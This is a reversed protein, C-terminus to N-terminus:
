APAGDAAMFGNLSCAFHLVHVAVALVGGAVLRSTWLWARWASFYDQSRVSRSIRTSRSIAAQFATAADGHEPEGRPRCRSCRGCPSQRRPTAPSAAPRTTNSGLSSGVDPRRAARVMFKEDLHPAGARQQPHADYATTAASASRM